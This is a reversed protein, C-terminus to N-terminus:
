KQVKVVALIVMFLGCGCPFGWITMCSQAGQTHGYLPWVWLPVGLYLGAAINALTIVFLGCGCPFEGGHFQFECTATNVKVMALTIVFLALVGVISFVM